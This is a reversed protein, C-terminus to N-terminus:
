CFHTQEASAEDLHFRQPDYQRAFDIIEAKSLGPVSLEFRYGPAFDEFCKRESLEADVVQVTM